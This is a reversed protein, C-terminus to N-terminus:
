QNKMETIAKRLHVKIEKIINKDKKLPDKENEFSILAREADIKANMYKLLYLQAFSRHYLTLYHMDADSDGVINMIANLDQDAKLMYKEKVSPPLGQLEELRVYTLARYKLLDCDDPAAELCESFRKLSEQEKGNKQSYAIALLKKSPENEEIANAQEAFKIHEDLNGKRWHATALLNLFGIHEPANGLAVGCADMCPKLKSNLYLVTAKEFRVQIEEEPSLVKKVAKTKKSVAM